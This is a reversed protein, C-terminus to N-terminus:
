VHVDMQPFPFNLKKKPFANYIEETVAATTPALDAYKTWFRVTLNVASDGLASVFVSPEPNQLVRADRALIDMIVARAVDVKDGYAIGIVLDTRRAGGRSLNTIEGNSLAGNPLYITQNDFTKLETTFIMIRKVVGSKGSATVITDGIKFPKFFLIVIGGAVNQMTGSLAMGIALAAAGLAATIATMQVGVTTLVVVFVFVKSIISVFSGLFSILSEELKRRQMGRVVVRTLRGSLWMGVSLIAIATMLRLTFNLGAQMLSQLLSHLNSPDFQEININTQDM